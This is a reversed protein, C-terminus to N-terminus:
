IYVKEIGSFILAIIKQIIQKYSALESTAKLLKM